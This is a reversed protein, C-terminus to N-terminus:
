EETPPSERRLAEELKDLHKRAEARTQPNPDEKAMRALKALTEQTLASVRKPVKKPM